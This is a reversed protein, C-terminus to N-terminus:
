YLVHFLFPATPGAESSTTLSRFTSTKLLFFVATFFV